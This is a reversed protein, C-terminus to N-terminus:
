THDARVQWNWTDPTHGALTHSTAVSRCPGLQLHKYLVGKFSHRRSSYKFLNSYISIGELNFPVYV